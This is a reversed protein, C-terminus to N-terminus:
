APIREPTTQQTAPHFLYLGNRKRPPGWREAALVFLEGKTLAGPAGEANYQRWMAARNVIALPDRAALFASASGIRTERPTPLLRRLAECVLSATRGLSVDRSTASLAEALACLTEVTPAGDPYPVREVAIGIRRADESRDANLQAAQWLLAEGCERLIEAARGSVASPPVHRGNHAFGRRYAYTHGERVLDAALAPLTSGALNSVNWGGLSAFRGRDSSRRGEHPDPLAPPRPWDQVSDLLSRDPLM